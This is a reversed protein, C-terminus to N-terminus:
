VIALVMLEWLHTRQYRLIDVLAQRDPAQMQAYRVPLRHQSPQAM